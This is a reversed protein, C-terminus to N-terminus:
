TDLQADAARVAAVFARMKLADKIGKAGSEIGSSVDVGWPRVTLVAQEVTEPKLGGALMLPLRRQDRPPLASWRFATGTGGGGQDTHSDALLAWADPYDREWAVWDQSSGMPVARIYPQGCARVAEPSERGHFQLLDPQLQSQIAAVEAPSADQVLAATKLGPPLQRRLEVAAALGRYRPTGPVLVFGVLDVGLEAALLADELRTIGCFKIRTSM